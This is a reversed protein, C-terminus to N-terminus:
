NSSNRDKFISIKTYDSKLSKLLMLEIFGAEVFHDKSLLRTQELLELAHSRLQDTLTIRMMTRYRLLMAAEASLEITKRLSSDLPIVRNMIELMVSRHREWASILMEPSQNAIRDRSASNVEASHIQKFFMKRPVRIARGQALLELAWECEVALGKFGDTPFGGIQSIVGSRTVGRWPVAEAKAQFFALIQAERTGYRPLDVKKQFSFGPGFVHMDSYAVVADKENELEALLLEIYRPHVLDDHPLIFYFPTQVKSLLSRINADWGLRTPNISVRFRKDKLFPVVFSLTQDAPPDIAIHVILDSYTQRMISQLTRALLIGSKYAPICVTVTSM